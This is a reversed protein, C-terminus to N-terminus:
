LFLGVNTWIIIIAQQRVPSLGMNFGIIAYIRWKPEM